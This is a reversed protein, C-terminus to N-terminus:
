EVIDLWHWVSRNKAASALQLVCGSCGTVVAEVDGPFGSLCTEAMQMSLGPNSMKLIGGMGCCLGSGKVIGPFINELFPMDRDQADWHCPQHYGLRGPHKEHIDAVPELLLETLTVIGHKWAGADAEEFFTGGYEELSHFCSACFVVIRPRGLSNWYSANQERMANMTKHQGAHHMSGGCCTFGSGDLVTYGWRRLLMEAKRAWQPRVRTATCGGFLVVPTEIPAASGPCPRIRAWPAVNKKNALAKAPAMSAKLFDPTVAEPLFSAALGIGPWLPGLHRIWIEWFYQSWHPHAARADALLDSTSLKRACTQKCRGCGACLKVLYKVQEWDLEPPGGAGEDLPELLLRKAKPAYEERMFERFVPCVNLCEGCQTCGRKM